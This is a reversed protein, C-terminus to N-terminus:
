HWQLTFNSITFVYHSYICVSVFCYLMCFFCVQELISCILSTKGSGVNRCVGLLKGKLFYWLSLWKMDLLTKIVETIIQDCRPYHLLSTESPQYPRLMKMRLLCTWITNRWRMLQEPRHSQSRKTWSLTANRMVVASNSGAIQTLYPEPNQILLIKQFLWLANVDNLNKGIKSKLNRLDM